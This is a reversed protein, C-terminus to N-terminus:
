HRIRLCRVQFTSQISSVYSCSSINKIQITVETEIDFKSCVTKSGTDTATILGLGNGCQSVPLNTGDTKQAGPIMICDGGGTPVTLLGKSGYACCDKDQFFITCLILHM